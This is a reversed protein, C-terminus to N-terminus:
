LSDSGTEASAEAIGSSIKGAHLDLQAIRRRVRFTTNPIPHPRRFTTARPDALPANEEKGGMEAFTPEVLRCRGSLSPPPFEDEHGRQQREPSGRQDKGDDFLFCADGGRRTSLEVSSLRAHLFSATPKAADIRVTLDVSGDRMVSVLFDVPM